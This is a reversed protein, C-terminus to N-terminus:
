GKGGERWTDVLALNDRHIVEEYTADGVVKEFRNSRLGKIKDVDEAPYNSLGRAFERGDPDCVSVVDGKGFRGHVAVIGIALLSKGGRQVARCAGADVVIKGRPRATFGIWRKRSTLARAQPLCLTGVPKGEVIDVLVNRRRGSAIIVAEGAACTMRAAELKSSMGGSGM